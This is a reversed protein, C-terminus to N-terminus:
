IAKKTRKVTVEYDGENNWDEIVTDIPYVIDYNENDSINIVESFWVDRSFMITQYKTKIILATDFVIEYEGNGVSIEDTIIIM